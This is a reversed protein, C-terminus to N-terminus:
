NWIFSGQFSCVSLSIPVFKQAYISRSIREFPFSYFLSSNSHSFVGSNSSHVDRICFPLSMRIGCSLTRHVLPMASVIVLLVIVIFSCHYTCTNLHIEVGWFMQEVLHNQCGNLCVLSEVKILESLSM